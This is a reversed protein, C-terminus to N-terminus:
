FCHVSDLVPNPASTCVWGFMATRMTPGAQTCQEEAARVVGHRPACHRRTAPKALRTAACARGHRRVCTHATTSHRLVGTVICPKYRLVLGQGADYRLGPQTTDRSLWRGYRRRTVICSKTDRCESGTALGEGTMICNITDHGMGLWDLRRRDRYLQNYRSM